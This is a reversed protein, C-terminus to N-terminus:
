PHCPHFSSFIPWNRGTKISRSGFIRLFNIITLGRQYFENSIKMTAKRFCKTESKLRLTNIKACFQGLVAFNEHCHEKLIANRVPDGRPGQEGKMGQLYFDSYLEDSLFRYTLTHQLHKEEVVQYLYLNRVLQQDLLPM